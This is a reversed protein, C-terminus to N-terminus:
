ASYSSFFANRSKRFFVGQGGRGPEVEEEEVLTFNMEVRRQGLDPREPTLTRQHRGGSLIAPQANVSREVVAVALRLIQHMRLLVSLLKEAEETLQEGGVPLTKQYQNEVVRRIVARSGHEVKEGLVFLVDKDDPQRDVARFQVRDFPQPAVKLLRCEVIIEEAIGFTEFVGDVACEVFEVPM